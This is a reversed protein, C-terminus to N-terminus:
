ILEFYELARSIGDEDVGSTVYDAVDKLPQCANGMAVGLAVDRVLSVDNGGDGFAMAEDMTLGYYEMVKVAALSKDIGRMNVDMFLETWRSGVCEPLQPLIEQELEHSIYPCVQLVKQQAAIERLPAVAPVIDVMDIARQVENTIKEVFINEQTMLEMAFGYQDMLSFIREVTGHPFSQEYIVEGSSTLCYSGNVTIYGDVEIDRVVDTHRLLRGTAIFVKIGRERLRAIAKRASDPVAHTTFSVLTGDIDFFVAKIRNKM